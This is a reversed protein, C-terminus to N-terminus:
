ASASTQQRFVVARRSHRRIRASCRRISGSGSPVSHGSVVTSTSRDTRSVSWARWRRPRSVVSGARDNAKILERNWSLGGPYAWSEALVPMGTPLM